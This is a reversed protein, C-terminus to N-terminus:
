SALKGRARVAVVAAPQDADEASGSERHM